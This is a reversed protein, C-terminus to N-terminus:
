EKITRRTPTPITKNGGALTSKVGARSVLLSQNLQNDESDSLGAAKNRPTVNRSRSTRPTISNLKDSDKQREKSVRELASMRSADTTQLTSLRINTRVPQGQHRRQAQKSLYYKIDQAPGPPYRRGHGGDAAGGLKWGKLEATAQAAMPGHGRKILYRLPFQPTKAEARGAGGSQKRREHQVQNMNIPNFGYM